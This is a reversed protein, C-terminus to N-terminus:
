TTQVTLDTDPMQLSGCEPGEQLQRQCLVGTSKMPESAIPQFVDTLTWTSGAPTLADSGTAQKKTKQRVKVLGDAGRCPVSQNTSIPAKQKMSSSKPEGPPWPLLLLLRSELFRLNPSLLMYSIARSLEHTSVFCDRVCM